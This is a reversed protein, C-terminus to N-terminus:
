RSRFTTAVELLAKIGGLRCFWLPEELLINVNRSPAQVQRVKLWARTASALWVGFSEYGVKFEFIKAMDSIGHEVGRTDHEELALKVQQLARLLRQGARFQKPVSITDLLSYEQPIKCCM